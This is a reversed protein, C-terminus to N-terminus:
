TTGMRTGPGGAGACVSVSAGSRLGDWGTVARSTARLGRGEYLHLQKGGCM